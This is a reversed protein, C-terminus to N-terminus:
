IGDVYRMINEYFMQVESLNALYATDYCLHSANPQTMARNLPALEDMAVYRETNIYVVMRDTGGAGSGKCWSAGGIYLETGNQKSVNNELLFTLITKEALESVRTTALYNFQEYPMLIHNPIAERDYEATAWVALIADNIDQLIQNPTKSKFTTLNGTGTSAANATTVNPNNILGTSGYRKIGVYANADMHKDYTMRVGDRLISDYSRGTMNGRQMDVFGVRFGVSFIHTKFLEKDFNAQVMPIGNAGGAHVPGDESGGAVGYEVNMASVYEAWGGGVRIPLDRGYTFSTLPQRIMNDRKELESQLFAGGNAIAAADMTQFKQPAAAGTSPASVVGADFTGMNQYKM